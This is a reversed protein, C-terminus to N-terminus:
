SPLAAEYQRVNVYVLLFLMYNQFDKYERQSMERPYANEEIQRIHLNPHHFLLFPHM